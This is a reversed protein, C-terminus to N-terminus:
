NFLSRMLLYYHVAELSKTEVNGGFFYICKESTFTGHADELKRGSSLFRRSSRQPLGAVALERANFDHLRIFPIQVETCATKYSEFKRGTGRVRSTTISHMITKWTCEYHTTFSLTIRSGVEWVAIQLQSQVLIPFIFWGFM